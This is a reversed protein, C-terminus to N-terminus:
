YQGKETTSYLRSFCVNLAKRDVWFILPLNETKIEHAFIIFDYYFFLYLFKQDLGFYAENM